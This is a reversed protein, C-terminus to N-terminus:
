QPVDAPIQICYQRKNCLALILTYLQAADISPMDYGAQLATLTFAAATAGTDDALQQLATQVTMDGQEVQVSLAALSSDFSCIFKAPDINILGQLAAAGRRSPHDPKDLYRRADVQPRSSAHITHVFRDATYADSSCAAHASAWRWALVHHRQVCV